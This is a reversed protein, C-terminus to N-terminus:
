LVYKARGDRGLFSRSLVGAWGDFLSGIDLGVGGSEKAVACYSKGLAGAGVLTLVGPGSLRKVEDRITLFKEWHRTRRCGTNGEEPVKICTASVNYRSCFPELVDRCTVLVVRRASTVVEDLAGTLWLERHVDIDCTEASSLRAGGDDFYQKPTRWFHNRQDGAYIGLVDAAAAAQLVYHRLENIESSSFRSHGFWFELHAHMKAQNIGNPFLILRGEGDGLRVLSFPTEAKLSTIAREALEEVGVKRM